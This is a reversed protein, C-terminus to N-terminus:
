QGEGAQKVKRRYSEWNFILVIGAEHFRDIVRAGLISELGGATLNSILITPRRSEYRDNIVETIFLQETATGFQVGVEDIVLVDPLTFSTIAQQETEGAKGGFTSKIRRVLKMATTHLCSVEQEMLETCIAGALHNKGTGPNGLMLIGGGTKLHKTKFDAAYSQCKQKIAAADANPPQYSDFKIGLFREGIQCDKFRKLIRARLEDERKEREAEQMKRDFEADCEPCYFIWPNNHYLGKHWSMQGHKPCSPVEALPPEGIPKSIEQGISRQEPQQRSFEARKALLRQNAEHLETDTILGM